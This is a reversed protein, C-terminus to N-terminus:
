KTRKVAVKKATTKHKVPVKKTKKVSTVGVDKKMHKITSEIRDRMLELAVLEVISSYGDPDIFLVAEKDTVLVFSQAQALTKIASAKEKIM